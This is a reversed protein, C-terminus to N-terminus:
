IRLTVKEQAMKQLLSDQDKKTQLIREVVPQPIHEADEAKLSQLIIKKADRLAETKGEDRAEEIMQAVLEDNALEEKTPLKGDQFVFRQM